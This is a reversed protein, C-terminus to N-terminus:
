LEFPELDDVFGPLLVDDCDRPYINWPDVSPSASTAPSSFRFHAVHAQAKSHITAQSTAATRSVIESIVHLHYVYANLICVRVCM